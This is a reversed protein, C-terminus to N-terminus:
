FRITSGVGGAIFKEKYKIKLMGIAAEGSCHTATIYETNIDEIAAKVKITDMHLMHFGGLLYKVPKKIPLNKLLYPIGMHGCGTVVYLEDNIDIMLAQEPM